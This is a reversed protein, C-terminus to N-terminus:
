SMLRIDGTADDMLYRGADTTILWAPTIMGEDFSSTVSHQYGSEVGDIRGCEAEGRKVAALFELLATSVHSIKEGGDLPEIGTVYRGKVTRLSGGVFEFDITFNFFSAGKYASIVAVAERDNDKDAEASLAAEELKMDRLLGRVTQQAGEGSQIVGEKLQFEFDGASSFTATGREPNEYLHIGGGQDTMEVSGLLASAADAEPVAERATRMTRLSNDAKICGPEISIDNSRLVACVNDIAQRESRSDAYNDALIIVLFFVNIAALMAIVLTKVRSLSM